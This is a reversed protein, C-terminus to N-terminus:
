AGVEFAPQWPAWPLRRKENPGDFLSVAAVRFGLATEMRMVSALAQAYDAM